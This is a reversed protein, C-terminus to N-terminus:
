TSKKKVTQSIYQSMFTVLKISNLFICRGAKEESLLLLFLLLLLLLPLLMCLLLLLLLLLIGGPGWRNTHSFLAWCNGEWWRSVIYNLLGQNGKINPYPLWCLRLRPYPGIEYCYRFIAFQFLIIFIELCINKKKVICLNERLVKQIYTLILNFKKKKGYLHCNLLSSRHVYSRHIRHQDINKFKKYCKKCPFIEERQHVDKLLVNLKHKCSFVGLNKECTAVFM